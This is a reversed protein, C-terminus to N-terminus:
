KSEEYKNIITEIDDYSVWDGTKHHVLEGYYRHNKLYYRQMAKLADLLAEREALLATIIEMPQAKNVRLGRTVRASNLWAQAKEHTNM